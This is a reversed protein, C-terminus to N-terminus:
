PRRKQMWSRRGRILYTLRQRQCLLTIHSWHSVGHQTEKEKMFGFISGKSTPSSQQVLADGAVPATSTDLMDLVSEQSPETPQVSSTIMPETPQPTPASTLTSETDKLPPTPGVDKETHEPTPSGTEKKNFFGGFLSNRKNPKPANDRNVMNSSEVRPDAAMPQAPEDAAVATTAAEM